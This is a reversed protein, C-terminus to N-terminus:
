LYHRIWVPDLFLFLVYLFLYPFRLLDHVKSLFLPDTNVLKSLLGLSVYSTILPAVPCATYSCETSDEWSKQLDLVIRFYLPKKKLFVSNTLNQIMKLDLYIIKVLVTVLPRASNVVWSLAFIGGVYWWWWMTDGWWFDELKVSVFVWTNSHKASSCIQRGMQSLM